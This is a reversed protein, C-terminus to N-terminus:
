FYLYIGLREILIYFHTATKQIWDQMSDSVFWYDLRSQIRPNRQRWTYRHLNPYKVRFIDVLDFTNLMECIMNLSKEKTRYNGGDRDLNVNLINNFDGGALITYQGDYKNQLEQMKSILVRLLIEQSEDKNPNYVNVLIFNQGQICVVSIIFHGGDDEISEIIQHDLSSKFMINVGASNTKGHSFLINGGWQRKWQMEVESSSHAEQVFLIDAKKSKFWNYIVMRKEHNRIGRVNLSLVDFNCSM